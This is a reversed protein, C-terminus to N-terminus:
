GKKKLAKGFFSTDLGLRRLQDTLQSLSGLGQEHYPDYYRHYTEASQRVYPDVIEQNTPLDDGFLAM